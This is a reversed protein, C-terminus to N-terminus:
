QLLAIAAKGDLHKADKPANKAGKKKPFPPNVLM